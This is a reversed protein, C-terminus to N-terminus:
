RNEWGKIFNDLLSHAVEVLRKLEAASIQQPTSLQEAISGNWLRDGTLIRSGDPSVTIESGAKLYSSLNLTPSVGYIFTHRRGTKRDWIGVLDRDLLLGAVYKGDNTFHAERLGDMAGEFRIQQATTADWLRCIGKSNCTLINIRDSSVQVKQSENTTLAGELVTVQRGNHLDWLVASKESQVGLLRTGNSMITEMTVDNDHGILAIRKGTVINWIGIGQNRDKVLFHDPVGSIRTELLDETFYRFGEPLGELEIHQGNAANWIQLIAQSPTRDDHLENSYLSLTVIGHYMESVTFWFAAVITKGYFPDLSDAIQACINGSALEWVVVKSTVRYTYDMMLALVYKGDRSIQHSGIRMNHESNPKLPILHGNTVDFIELLNSRVNLIYRGDPTFEVSDDYFPSPIPLHSGTNDVQFTFVPNKEGLKWVDALGGKGLTIVHTGIPSFLAREFPMSVGKMAVLRKGSHLDWLGAENGSTVGLVMRDDPTVKANHLGEHAGDFQIEHGSSVDWLRKSDKCQVLISTRQSCIQFEGEESLVSRSNRPIHLGLLPILHNSETDWLRPIADSCAAILRTGDQNFESKNVHWEGDPAVGYLPQSYRVARIAEDLTQTVEVPLPRSRSIGPEVAKLATVLGQMEHVPNILYQRAQRAREVYPADEAREVALDAAHFANNRRQEAQKLQRDMEFLKKDTAQLKKQNFDYNKQAMDLNSQTKSLIGQLKTLHYQVVTVQQVVQWFVFTAAIIISVLVITGNRVRRKAQGERAKAQKEAVVLMLNAREADERAKTESALAIKNVQKQSAALFQYDDDSLSKETAWTLAEQLVVGHLLWSVEQKNSKLWAVLSTAYPRMEALNREVWVADFVAAYIRNYVQLSGTQEMILGSLRLEMQETSDDVPISGELLIRQYLGLVRGKRQEASRQIRDRITRLHEPDDQDEWNQIIKEKILAAIWDSEKGDPIVDSTNVIVQCIKQTLFPQGGTWELVEKLIENPHSTRETLGITLVPLAEDLQFGRLRISHAINFPTIVDSRILDTPAAAGVLCFCLKEFEPDRARRNYFERIGTFFEDTSISNSLSRVFDIEDVFVILRSKIKSLAAEQIATAWRQLPGLDEQERLCRWCTMLENSRGIQEGIRKLLGYYWQDVTVNQGVETLDLVAVSFGDQRLQAATQSLLSSKGVQRSDLVNCYEGARLAALLESDAQRIVYCGENAKLAGGAVFFRHKDESQM